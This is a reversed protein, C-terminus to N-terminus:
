DGARTKKGLYKRRYEEEYIRTIDRLRVVIDHVDGKITSGSFCLYNTTIRLSSTLTVLWKSEPPFYFARIELIIEEDPCTLSPKQNNLASGCASCSTADSPYTAGCTPCKEQSNM